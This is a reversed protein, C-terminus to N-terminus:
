RGNEKQLAISAVVYIEQVPRILRATKLGNKYVFYGARGLPALIREYGFLRVKAQQVEYSAMLLLNCISRTNWSFLHMDSDCPNFKLFYRGEEFPVCLLLRGTPKLFERIRLLTM